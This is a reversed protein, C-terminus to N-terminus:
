KKKRGEKPGDAPPRTLSAQPVVEPPPLEYKLKQAERTAIAVKTKLPVHLRVFDCDGDSDESVPDQLLSALYHYISVGRKRANEKARSLISKPLKTAALENPHYYSEFREHLLDLIDPPRCNEKIFTAIAPSEIFLELRRRGPNSIRDIAFMAHIEVEREPGGECIGLIDVTTGYHCRHDKIRQPLNITTGIKIPGDEGIRAFYIM